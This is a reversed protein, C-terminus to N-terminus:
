AKLSKGADEILKDAAASSSVEEELWDVAKEEIMAWEEHRSAQGARMAAIALATARLAAETACFERCRQEADSGAGAAAVVLKYFGDANPDWSGDFQQLAILDLLADGSTFAKKETKDSELQPPPPPPPAGGFLTGGPPPPPPAPGSGGGFLTPPPPPCPSMSAGFASSDPSPSRSADWMDAYEEEDDDDCSSMSQSQQLQHPPPPPPAAKSLICNLFGGSTSRKKKVAGYSRPTSRDCMPMVRPAPAGCLAMMPAAACKQRPLARMMSSYMMEPEPEPRAVLVKAKAETNKDKTSPDVGVFATFRSSVNASTSIVIIERKRKQRLEKKAKAEASLKKDKKKSKGDDTADGDEDDDEDDESDSIRRRGFFGRGQDDDDENKADDMKTELHKILTKAALRHLAMKEGDNAGIGEGTLSIKLEHKIEEAGIKGTLTATAESSAGIDGSLIAYSVLREGNYVPPAKEPIQTVCSVGSPLNSISINVDDVFAQTAQRLLAMMKTQLRQNGSTTVFIAKGGGARAVGKLLATSAGEGIGIGFVRSTSANKAVLQIVQNTNGVEGDTILFVQRPMGPKPPKKFVAKLPDLIETGGMDAKMSKQLELAEDLSEKSYPRSGDSFLLSHENGFSVVNFSCGVPLSKLLLLLAEKAADIRSGSMSGSRDVIFVFEAKKLKAGKISALDPFFNLAVVSQRLFSAADIADKRGPAVVAVPEMQRDYTIKVRLDHDFKHDVIRVTTIQKSSAGSSFGVEVQDGFAGVNKVPFVPDIDLQFDFEYKSAQKAIAVGDNFLSSDDRDEQFGAPCYRPNLVSPLTFVVSGDDGSGGDDGSSSSAALDVVYSFSLVAVSNPPLNGIKCRFIDGSTDSEEALFATKNQKIAEEYTQKAAEKAQVEAETVKDDITAKFKYVASDDDLPFTFSAEVSKDGENKYHLDSTVEAIFGNVLVRNKISKLPVPDKDNTCLGVFPCHRRRGFM